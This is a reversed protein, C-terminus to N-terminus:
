QVKDKLEPLEHKLASLAGDIRQMYARCSDKVSAQNDLLRGLAEQLSESSLDNIHLSYEALGIDSMIGSAKHGQYGIAVTPIAQSLAFICSHFRTGVMAHMHSYM